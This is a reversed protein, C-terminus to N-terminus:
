VLDRESRPQLRASPTRKSGLLAALEHFSSAITGNVVGEFAFDIDPEAGFITFLDGNEDHALETSFNTVGRGRPHFNERM